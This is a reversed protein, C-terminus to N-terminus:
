TRRNADELAMERQKLETNDSYVAVTGGGTVKREAILIWRGDARRQL